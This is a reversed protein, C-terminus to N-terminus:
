AAPLLDDDMIATFMKRLRKRQCAKCKRLERQALKFVETYASYYDNGVKSFHLVGKRTTVNISAKISKTGERSVYTHVDNIDFKSELSNRLRNIHQSLAPSTKM